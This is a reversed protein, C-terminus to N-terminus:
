AGPRFPQPDMHTNDCSLRLVFCFVLRDIIIPLSQQQKGKGFWLLGGYLLLDTACRYINGGTSLLM